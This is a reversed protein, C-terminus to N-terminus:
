KRNFELLLIPLKARACLLVGEGEVCVACKRWEGVHKYEDTYELIYIGIM